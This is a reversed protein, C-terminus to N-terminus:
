AITFKKFPKQKVYTKLRTLGWFGRAIKTSFAAMHPKWTLNKDILVGLYKVSDAETLYINNIECQFKHKIQKNTVIMYKSKTYNITLKNAEIWKEIRKIASKVNEQLKVLNKHKMILVTDDAYVKVAFNTREPLDSKYSIFLRPGTHFGLSCWM